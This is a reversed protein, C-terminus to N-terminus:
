RGPIGNTSSATYGYNASLGLGRLAGPLFSFHHIYSAEFGSIWANGANVPQTALYTGLPGGPPQYNNLVFSQSVIPDQLNKYFYGVSLEGFPQLYHDFLIDIDDGTEARLNANGLSVAYRNSGNANVSWSLAQAINQPDPRSLGRAYVLRLDSNSGVGFRLSASPLVTTYSGSFTNRTICSTTTCSKNISFNRVDDSTAEVRLGAIFRVRSSLDITNMVYGAGVKEVLDYEAGDQGATSTTTFAAPNANAYALVDEETVNYGLKYKGGLYYKNNTLRNPFMSLPINGNPTYTFTYSESFKHANRFKGGVEVTASRSGIRYRKGLSGAAQLNMQASLGLSRNLNNLVLNSPNFGETYCAASWQPLYQNTTANPDYQCGSSSLTNSFVATSYPAGGYSSRSASLNWSGFTTLAPSPGASKFM